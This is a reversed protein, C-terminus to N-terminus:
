IRKASGSTQVICDQTQNYLGKVQNPLSLDFNGSIVVTDGDFISGKLKEGRMEVALHAVVQELHYIDVVFQWVNIVKHNSFGEFNPTLTITRLISDVTRKVEESQRLGRVIGKPNTIINGNIAPPIVQQKDEVATEEQQENKAESVDDYINKKAPYDDEFLPIWNSYARKEWKCFKCKLFGGSLIIGGPSLDIRYLFYITRLYSEKIKTGFVGKKKIEKYLKVKGIEIVVKNGSIIHGGCDPCEIKKFLLRITKELVMRSKFCRDEDLSKHIFAKDVKREELNYKINMTGKLDTNM